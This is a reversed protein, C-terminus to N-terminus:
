WKWGAASSDPPPTAAGPVGADASADAASHVPFSDADDSVCNTLFLLAVVCLGVAVVLRMMSSYALKAPDILAAVSTASIIQLNKKAAFASFTLVGSM